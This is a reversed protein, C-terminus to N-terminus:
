KGQLKLLLEIAKEKKRELMTEYRIIKDIADKPPLSTALLNAQYERQEAQEVYALFNKTGLITADLINLLIQKYQEADPGEGGVGAYRERLREREPDSSGQEGSSQLYEVLYSIEYCKAVFWDDKGYSKDLTEQVLASVYGFQEVEKRAQELVLLQGRVTGTTTAVFKRSAKTPKGPLQGDLLGFPNEIDVLRGAWYADTQKQIEGVEARRSRRLRWESEAITRVLAHQMADRPSWARELGRLLSDYEEPDEQADGQRIVVDRSFLGYKVANYRIAAKGAATKPGTSHKSSERNAEKKRKSTPSGPPQGVSASGEYAASSNSANAPTSTQQGDAAGSREDNGPRNENVANGAM